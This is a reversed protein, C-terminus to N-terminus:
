RGAIQASGSLDAFRRDLYTREDVSLGDARYAADLRTLDALQARLMIAGDRGLRGSREAAAIRPELSAWRGLAGYGGGVGADVGLRRQLEDYRSTLDATDGFFHTASM